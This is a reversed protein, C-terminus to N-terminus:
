FCFLASPVCPCISWYGLAALEAIEEECKRPWLFLRLDSGLSLDLCNEDRPFPGPVGTPIECLHTPTDRM